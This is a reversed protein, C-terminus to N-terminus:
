PFGGRRRQHEIERVFEAVFHYSCLDVAFRAPIESSWKLLIARDSVQSVLAWLAWLDEPAGARSTQRLKALLLKVTKKGFGCWKGLTEETVHTHEAPIHM